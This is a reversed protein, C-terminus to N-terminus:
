RTQQISRNQKGNEVYHEPEIRNIEKYITQDGVTHNQLIDLQDQIFTNLTKNTHKSLKYFNTSIMDNTYFLNTTCFHDVAATWSGQNSIYVFAFQGSIKPFQNAEISQLIKLDSINTYGKTYLTGNKGICKRFNDDIFKM